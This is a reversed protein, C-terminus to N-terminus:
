GENSLIISEEPNLDKFFNMDWDRGYTGVKTINKESWVVVGREPSAMLVILKEEPRNGNEDTDMTVMLKPFAKVCLGRKNSRESKM